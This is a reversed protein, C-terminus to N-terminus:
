QGNNSPHLYQEILDGTKALAALAVDGYYEHEAAHELEAEVAAFGKGVPNGACSPQCVNPHLHALMRHKYQVSVALALLLYGLAQHRFRDACSASNGFEAM